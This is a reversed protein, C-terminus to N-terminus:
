AIIATVVVNELGPNHSWDCGFTGTCVMECPVKRATRENRSVESLLRKTREECIWGHSFNSCSTRFAEPEFLPGGKDSARSTRKYFGLGNGTGYFDVKRLVCVARRDEKRTATFLVHFMRLTSRKSQSCGDSWRRPAKPHQLDSPNGHHMM